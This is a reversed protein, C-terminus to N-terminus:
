AFAHVARFSKRRRECDANGHVRPTKSKGTFCHGATAQLSPSVKGGACPAFHASCISRASIRRMFDSKMLRFIVSSYLTTQVGKWSQQWNRIKLRGVSLIKSSIMFNRSISQWILLACKGPATVNCDRNCVRLDLGTESDALVASVPSKEQGDM